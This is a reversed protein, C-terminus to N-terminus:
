RAAAKVDADVAAAEDPVEIGRFEFVVVVGAGVGLSEVADIESATM